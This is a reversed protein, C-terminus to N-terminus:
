RHVEPLNDTGLSMTQEPQKSVSTRMPKKPITFVPKAHQQTLLRRV